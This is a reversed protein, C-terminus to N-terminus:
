NNFRYTYKDFDGAIFRDCFERIAGKGGKHKLIVDSADKIKKHADAPCISIIDMSDMCELDNVDDGIYIVPVGGGIKHTLERQLIDYKSKATHDGTYVSINLKKCRAAVM